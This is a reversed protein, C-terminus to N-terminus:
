KGYEGIIRSMHKDRPTGTKLKNDIFTEAQTISDFKIPEPEDYFQRTITSWYKIGLFSKQEQVNYGTIHSEGRGDYHENEIIRYKNAM